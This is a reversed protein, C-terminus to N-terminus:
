MSVFPMKKVLKNTYYGYNHFNILAVRARSLLQRSILVFTRSIVPFQARALYKRCSSTENTIMTSKSEYRMRRSHANSASHLTYRARFAPM